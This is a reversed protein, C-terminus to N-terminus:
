SVEFEFPVDGILGLARQIRTYLAEERATQAAEAQAALLQKGQELQAHLLQRHQEAQSALLAHVGALHATAEKLVGVSQAATEDQVAAV